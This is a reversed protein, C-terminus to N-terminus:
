RRGTLKPDRHYVKMHAQGDSEFCPSRFAVYRQRGCSRAADKVFGDFVASNRTGGSPLGAMLLADGAIKNSGRETSYTVLCRRGKRLTCSFARWVKLGGSRNASQIVTLTPEIPNKKIMKPQVTKQSLQFTIAGRHPLEIRRYCEYEPPKNGVHDLNQEHWQDHDALVQLAACLSSGFDSFSFNAMSKRRLSLGVLGDYVLNGRARQWCSTRTRNTGM